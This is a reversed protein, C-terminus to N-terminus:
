VALWDGARQAVVGPERHHHILVLHLRRRALEGDGRRRRGPVVVRVSTYRRSLTASRTSAEFSTYLHTSTNEEKCLPSVHSMSYSHFAEFKTPMFPRGGGGDASFELIRTASWKLSLTEPAAESSLDAQIRAVDGANVKGGPFPPISASPPPGTAEVPAAVVGVITTATARRAGKRANLTFTYTQGDPGPGGALLLGTLKPTTDRPLVLGNGDTTKCEGAVPSVGECQWTFEWEYETEDDPDVSSTADLAVAVGESLLVDGGSISPELAASQVFFDYEVSSSVQPNVAQRGEFRLTYSVGPPLSKRPLFLQLTDSKTVSPDLTVPTGDSRAASWRFVYGDDNSCSDAMLAAAAIIRTDRGRPVAGDMLTM